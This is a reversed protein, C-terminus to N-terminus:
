SSQGVDSIQNNNEDEIENVTLSGVNSSNASANMMKSSEKDMMNEKVKEKEIMEKLRIKLLTNKADCDERM